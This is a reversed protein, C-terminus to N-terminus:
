GWSLLFIVCLVLLEWSWNAYITLFGVFAEVMLIEFSEKINKFYDILVFAIRKGFSYVWIFDTM